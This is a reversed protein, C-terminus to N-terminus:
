DLLSLQLPVLPQLLLQALPLWQRAAAGPQAALMDWGRPMLPGPQPSGKLKQGHGRRHCPHITDWGQHRGRERSATGAVDGRGATASGRAPGHCSRRGSPRPSAPTRCAAWPPRPWHHSAATGALCTKPTAARDGRPEGKRTPLWSRCIGSVRTTCARLPLRARGPGQSGGPLGLGGARRGWRSFLKFAPWAAGYACCRCGCWAWPGCRARGPPAGPERPLAAELM